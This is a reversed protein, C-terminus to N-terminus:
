ENPIRIKFSELAITIIDGNHIPLIDEIKHGNLLTGNTSGLDEITYNNGEKKIVCHVRSAQLVSIIIACKKPNRGIFIQDMQSIDVYNNIFINKTMAEISFGENRKEANYAKVAGAQFPLPDNTPPHDLAGLKGSHELINPNSVSELAPPISYKVNYAEAEGGNKGLLNDLDDLARHLNIDYIEPNVQLLYAIDQSLNSLNSASTISTEEYLQEKGVQSQQARHILDAFKVLEDRPLLGVRNMKLLFNIDELQLALSLLWKKVAFISRQRLEPDTLHSFEDIPVPLFIDTEPSTQIREQATVTFAPDGNELSSLCIFTPNNYISPGLTQYQNSKKDIPLFNEFVAPEVVWAREIGDGDVRIFSDNGTIQRLLKPIFHGFFDAQGLKQLPKNSLSSSIHAWAGSGAHGAMKRNVLPSYATGIGSIVFISNGITAIKNTLEFINKQTLPNEHKGDTIFICLTRDTSDTNLEENRELVELTKELGEVLNTGYGLELSHVKKVVQGFNNTSQIEINGTRDFSVLSFSLGHLNKLHPSLDAIQQQVLPIRDEMSSSKDLIIILRKLPYQENQKIPPLKEVPGINSGAEEPDGGAQLKAPSGIHALEKKDLLMGPQSTLVVYPKLGQLKVTERLGKIQFNQFRSTGLDIVKCDPPQIHM